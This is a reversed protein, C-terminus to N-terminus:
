FFTLETKLLNLARRFIHEAHFVFIAEYQCKMLILNKQLFHKRFMHEVLGNRMHQKLLQHSTYVTHHSEFKLGVSVVDLKM